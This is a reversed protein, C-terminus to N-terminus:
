ELESLVAQTCGIWEDMVNAPLDIIVRTDIQTGPMGYSIELQSRDAMDIMTDITVEELAFVFFRFGPSSVMSAASEATSYRQVLYAREPPAFDADGRAIGLRLMAGGPGEDIWPRFAFMGNALVPVSSGADDEMRLVSFGMQCGVLAGHEFWPMFEAQLTREPNAAAAESALVAGVIAARLFSALM